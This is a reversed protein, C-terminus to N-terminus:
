GGWLALASAWLGALIIGILVVAMTAAGRHEDAGESIAKPYIDNGNHFCAADPQSPDGTSIDTTMLAALRPIAPPSLDAAWEPKESM